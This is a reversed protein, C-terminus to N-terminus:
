VVVVESEANDIPDCTCQGGYYSGPKFQCRIRRGLLVGAVANYGHCIADAPQSQDDLELNTAVAMAFELGPFYIMTSQYGYTAGLHGYATGYRGKQGTHDSLNFTALGYFPGTPIMLDVYAKPAISHPPGYIEWCLAAIASSSGVLDSATWGSFTGAVAWNDHHSKQPYPVNYSTRDYGHVPTYDKPAGATAFRLRRRLSEPLLQTQDFTAWNSSNAHAALVMGLLMFNSSSYCVPPMWPLFPKCPRWQGAVWPVGLLKTPSWNHKPDKYLIARLPDTANCPAKCPKATDFDPVGSQMALLRRVTLASVNGAGWLDALSSYPMSPDSKAMRALLPDVLPPVPDDLGFAGQSVLRLVSAGTLSKTVSGWPYEDGARAPRGSGFDTVGSAAAVEADGQKFAISFSCNYKSSLTRAIGHFEARILALQVKTPHQYAEAVLVAAL